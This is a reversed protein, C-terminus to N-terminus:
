RRSLFTKEAGSGLLLLCGVWIGASAGLVGTLGGAALPVVVLGIRNGVLSLALSSSRWHRPVAESIASMTLPQGLGLFFGGLAIALLALPLQHIVAAAVALMSGSGWLATVVLVHRSLRRRLLPLLARSAISATARVALLVGVWLPSVGAEDGVLPLFASLLDMMGILAISAFFHSKVRPTRLIGRVRPLGSPRRAQASAPPVQDVDASADPLRRGQHLARGSVLVIALALGTLGAGLWLTLDIAGTAAMSSHGSGASDLLAGGALPGAMQGAAFGATFWGFAFDLQHDSVFRAIATQAAVVMTIQGVGLLASAAAIGPVSPAAAVGAAGAGSLLAGLSLLPRLSAASQARTATFLAFLVPLLAYIATIVGVTMGDAGLGILKYTTTPRILHVAGQSLFAVAM